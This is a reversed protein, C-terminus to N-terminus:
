HQTIFFLYCFHGVESSSEDKDDSVVVFAITAGGAPVRNGNQDNTVVTMHGPHNVKLSTDGTITSHAASVAPYSVTVTFPSGTVNEGIIIPQYLSKTLFSEIFVPMKQACNFM